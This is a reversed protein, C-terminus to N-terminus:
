RAAGLDPPERDGSPPARRSRSRCRRRRPAAPRLACVYRVRARAERRMARDLGYSRAVLALALAKQQTIAEVQPRKHAVRRVAEDLSLGDRRALTEALGRMNCRVAKRFLPNRRLAAVARRQRADLESAPAAM